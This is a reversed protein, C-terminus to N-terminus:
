TTFCQLFLSVARDWNYHWTHKNTETRVLRSVPERVFNIWEFNHKHKRDNEQHIWMTYSCSRAMAVVVIILGREWFCCCCYCSCCCVLIFFHRDFIIPGSEGMKTLQEVLEEEELPSVILQYTLLFDWKGKLTFIKCLTYRTSIIKLVYLSDILNM